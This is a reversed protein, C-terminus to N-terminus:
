IGKNNLSKQLLFKVAETKVSSAALMIPTKGEHNKSEIDLGLSLCKEIVTIDGLVAAYHLVTNGSNDRLSPDAGKLLLFDLFVPTNMCVAMMLLTMGESTKVNVDVGNSLCAEMIDIRSEPEIPFMILQVINFPMIDLKLLPDAGKKLLYKIADLNKYLISVAVPTLGRCTGKMNVDLGCSLCTEIITTNGGQCAFHLISWGNNATLTPNAGNELFCNLAESKAMAASCMLPTHGEHDRSDIDVGFSLLRQIVDTCGYQASIFLVDRGNENKFCPDAGNSLLFELTELNNSKAAVMLATHGEEDVSNVTVPIDLSLVTEMISVNGGEVAAHLLNRGILTRLSPDAGKSLLCDVAQKKGAAAAVLLPTTGFSDKSNVDFGLSLMMEIILVDGGEAASHLLNWDENEAPQCEKGSNDKDATKGAELNPVTTMAKMSDLLFSPMQNLRKLTGGAAWTASDLCCFWEYM